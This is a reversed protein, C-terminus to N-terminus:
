GDDRLEFQVLLNHREAGEGRFGLEELPGLVTMELGNKGALKEYFAPSRSVFPFELWQGETGLVNINGFCRGFKTLVLPIFSFLEDAKEDSLHFLVSFVWIFEFNRGRAAAAGFDDAVVIRPNKGSLNHKAIQRYALSAVNERIDVGLYNGQNLYQIAPIGLTLPGCGIELLSHHPKLGTGTLFAMQFQRHEHWQGEFGMSDTLIKQERGEVVNQLGLRDFLMAQFAHRVRQVTRQGIM